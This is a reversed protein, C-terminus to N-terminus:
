SLMATLQAPAGAFDMHVPGVAGTVTVDAADAVTAILTFVVAFPNAVGDEGDLGGQNGSLRKGTRKIGTISNISNESSNRLLAAPRKAHSTPATLAAAKAADTNSSVMLMKAMFPQPPPPEETGGGIFLPM